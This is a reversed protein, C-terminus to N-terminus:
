KSAFPTSCEHELALKVEPTKSHTSRLKYEITWAYPLRFCNAKPHVYSSFHQRRVTTTGDSSLVRTKIRMNQYLVLQYAKSKLPCACYIIVFPGKIANYYVYIYYINTINEISVRAPIIKCM